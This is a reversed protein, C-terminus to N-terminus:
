KRQNRARDREPGSPRVRLSLPGDGSRVGEAHSAEGAVQSM